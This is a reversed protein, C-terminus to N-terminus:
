RRACGHESEKARQVHREVAAKVKEMAARLEPSFAQMQRLWEEREEEPTSAM